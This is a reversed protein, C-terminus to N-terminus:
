CPPEAGRFIPTLLVHALTSSTHLARENWEFFLSCPRITFFTDLPFLVHDFPLSCQSPDFPWFCICAKKVGARWPFCYSHLTLSECHSLRTRSDVICYSQSIWKVIPKAVPGTAITRGTRGHSYRNKLSFFIANSLNQSVCTNYFPRELRSVM